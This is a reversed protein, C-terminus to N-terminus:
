VDREKVGNEAREEKCRPLSKWTKRLKSGQGLSYTLQYPPKSGALHGIEYIGHPWKESIGACFLTHQPAYEYRVYREVPLSPATTLATGSFGTCLPANTV